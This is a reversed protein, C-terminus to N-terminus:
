LGFDSCDFIEKWGSPSTCVVASCVPEGTVPDPFYFAECNPPLNSKSNLVAGIETSSLRDATEASGADLSMGTNGLVGAVAVAMLLNLTM